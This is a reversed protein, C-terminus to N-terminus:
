EVLDALEDRLRRLVRSKAIYVANISMGLKEAIETASRGDVVLEWCARWTRDEFEAQMLELARRTVFTRYEEESFLEADSAVLPDNGDGDYFPRRRRLYDLCKNRTIVSLWARFSSRREYEFAPLKKILLM